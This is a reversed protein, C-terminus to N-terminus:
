RSGDLSELADSLAPRAAEAASRLTNASAGSGLDPWETYRVRPSMGEEAPPIQLIAQVAELSRGSVDATFALLIRLRQDEPLREISTVLLTQAEANRNQGILMQAYEQAGIAHIWESAPQDLLTRFEMEAEPRHNSRALNVASRLRGEAFGPHIETLRKFVRAAKDYDAGREHIAGLALLAARSSPNISIAEELYSTALAPSATRAMDSALNVLLASAFDTDGGHSAIQRARDAAISRAFAALVFDNRAVYRRVLQQHLLAIPLLCKANRGALDGAVSDEVRRLTRLDNTSHALRELEMVKERAARDKGNSLAQMAGVYAARARRARFRPNDGGADSIPRDDTPPQVSRVIWSQPGNAPVLAVTLTRREAVGTAQNRSELVMTYNGTPIDVIPLTARRLGSLPHGDPSVAVPYEALIRGAPDVFSAEIAPADTAMVYFETPRGEVLVPRAAPVISEREGPGFGLSAGPQRITVWEGSSAPFIPPLSASHPEDPEPIVMRDRAMFFRASGQVRVMVRFTYTGPFLETQGFIRLGHLAILDAHPDSDLVAGQALHGAIKGTEDLVYVFIGVALRSGTHGALLPTGDIEVVFAVNRSGQGQATGITWSLAGPVDGSQQGSMLLAATRTDVGGINMTEITASTVPSTSSDSQAEQAASEAEASLVTLVAVALLLPVLGTFVERRLGTRSM